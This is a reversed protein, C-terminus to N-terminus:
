ILFRKIVFTILYMKLLHKKIIWSFLVLTVVLYECQSLLKIKRSIRVYKYCIYSKLLKVCAKYKIKYKVNKGENISNSSTEKLCHKYYNYFIHKIQIKFKFINNNFKYQLRFILCCNFIEFIFKKM